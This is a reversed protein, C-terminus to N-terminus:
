RPPTRGSSSPAVDNRGSRQMSILCGREHDLSGDCSLQLGAKTYVSRGAIHIRAESIATPILIEYSATSGANSVSVGDPTLTFRADRDSSTQTIKLSAGNTMRVRLTGLTQEAAFAINAQHEPVFAIGRVIAADASQAQPLTRSGQRAAGRALARRLFTQVSFGPIAATAVTAALIVTAAAILASRRMHRRRSLTMVREVGLVPPVHDDARLLASLEEDTMQQSSDGM